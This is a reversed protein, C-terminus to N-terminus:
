KAKRKRAKAARAKVLNRKNAAVQRPTLERRVKVGKLHKSDIEFWTEAKGAQEWKPNKVPVNGNALRRVRAGQHAANRGRPDFMPHKRSVKIKVTAKGFGKAIGHPNDTFYSQKTDTGKRTKFGEKVLKGASATTTHHYLLRTKGHPRIDTRIQVWPKDWAADRARSRKTGRPEKLQKIKRKPM